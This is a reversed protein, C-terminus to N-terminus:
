CISPMNNWYCSGLSAIPDVVSSSPGTSPEVFGNGQHNGVFVGTPSTLYSAESQIEATQYWDPLPTNSPFNNLLSMLLEDDDDVTAKVM